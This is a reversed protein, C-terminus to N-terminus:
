EQINDHCITTMKILHSLECLLGIPFCHGRTLISIFIVVLCAVYVMIATCGGTNGFQGKLRMWLSAEPECCILFMLVMGLAPWYNLPVDMISKIRLSNCCSDAQIVQDSRRQDM